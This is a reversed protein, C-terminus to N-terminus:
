LSKFDITLEFLSHFLRLDWPFNYNEPIRSVMDTPNNIDSFEDYEGDISGGSTDGFDSFNFTTAAAQLADLFEDIEENTRPTPTKPAGDSYGNYEVSFTIKKGSYKNKRHSFKNYFAIYLEIVDLHKVYLDVTTQIVPPFTKFLESM